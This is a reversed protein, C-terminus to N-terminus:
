AALLQQIRRKIVEIDAPDSPARNSRAGRAAAPGGVADHGLRDLLDSGSAVSEATSHPQRRAAM